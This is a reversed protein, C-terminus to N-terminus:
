VNFVQSVLQESLTWLKKANEPDTAYELAQGVQCDQVFSGSHVELAPDLCAALLPATVQSITNFAHGMAFTLCSNNHRSIEEICGFEGM